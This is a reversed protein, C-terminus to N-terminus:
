VSGATGRRIVIDLAATICTPGLYALAAIFAGAQRGHLGLYEAAGSGIIGMGLCVPIEWFLARTITPRLVAVRLARGSFALAIAAIYGRIQDVADNFEQMELGKGIVIDSYGAGTLRGHFINLVVAVDSFRGILAIRSFSRVSSGGSGADAM